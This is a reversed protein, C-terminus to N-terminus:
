KEEKGAFPSRIYKHKREFQLYNTALNSIEYIPKVPSIFGGKGSKPTIM